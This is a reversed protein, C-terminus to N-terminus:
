CRPTSNVASPSRSKWTTALATQSMSARALLQPNDFPGNRDLFGRTCVPLVKEQLLLSGVAGFEARTGFVVVLDADDRFGPDLRQTAVI